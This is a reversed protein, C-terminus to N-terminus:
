VKAKHIAFLTHQTNFYLNQSVICILDLRLKYITFTHSVPTKQVYRSAAAVQRAPITTAVDANQSEATYQLVLGTVTAVGSFVCM